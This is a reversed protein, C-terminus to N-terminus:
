RQSVFRASAFSGYKKAMAMTAANRVVPTSQVTDGAYDPKKKDKPWTEFLVFAENRSWPGTDDDFLPSEVITQEVAKSQHADDEHLSPEPSSMVLITSRQPTIPDSLVHRQRPHLPKFRQKHPSVDPLSHVGDDDLNSFSEDFVDLVNPSTITESRVRRYPSKQRPLPPQKFVSLRPPPLMEAQSLPRDPESDPKTNSDSAGEAAAHKSIQTPSRDPVASSPDPQEDADSQEDDDDVNPMSEAMKEVECAAQCEAHSQAAETGDQGTIIAARRRAPIEAFGPSSEVSSIPTNDRQPTAVNVQINKTPPEPTSEPPMDFASLLLDDEIRPSVPRAPEPQSQPVFFSSSTSRQLETDLEDEIGIPAKVIEAAKNELSKATYDECTESHKDIRSLAQMETMDRAIQSKTNANDIEVLDVEPQRRRRTRTSTDSIQQTKKNPDLCMMRTKTKRSTFSLTGREKGQSRKQSQIDRISPKLTSGPKISSSLTTSQQDINRGHRQHNTPITARSHTNSDSEQRNVVPQVESVRAKPATTTTSKSRPKVVPQESTQQTQTSIDAIDLPSSARQLSAAARVPGTVTNYSGAEVIKDTSLRRRKAAPEGNPTVDALIPRQHITVAANRARFPSQSPIIARGLRGQSAGLVDRISRSRGQSNVANIRAVTARTPKPQGSINNGDQRNLVATLDTSSEHIKEEVQVLVPRDLSLELGEGFEENDRYHLDGVFNGSDDQVIVRRNFTHFRLKGDHWKKQKKRIDHTFLCKYEYVPATVSQSQNETATRRVVSAMAARSAPPSVGSVALRGDHTSRWLVSVACRDHTTFGIILNMSRAM